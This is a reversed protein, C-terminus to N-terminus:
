RGGTLGSHCYGYQEFVALTALPEALAGRCVKGTGRAHPYPDGAVGAIRKVLLPDDGGAPLSRGAPLRCVVVDGARLRRHWGRRVALLMDGDQYTPLMSGGRVRTVLLGRRLVPVLACTVALLGLATLVLREWLRCRRSGLTDFGHRVIANALERGLGAGWVEPSLAYVIEHGQVVNTPKIEAHGVLAGNRRVAWVDFLDQAYVKTFIRGFLARDEEGPAPGPGDM